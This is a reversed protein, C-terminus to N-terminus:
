RDTSYTLATATRKNKSHIRYLRYVKEKLSKAKEKKM